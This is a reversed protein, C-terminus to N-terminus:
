VLGDLFIQEQLFTVIDVHLNNMSGLINLLTHNIRRGM